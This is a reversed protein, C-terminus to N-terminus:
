FIAIAARLSKPDLSYCENEVHIHGQEPCQILSDCFESMQQFGSSSGKIYLNGSLVQFNLTYVKRRGLLLRRLKRWFCIKNKEQQVCEKELELDCEISATTLHCDNNKSFSFKGDDSRSFRLCVDKFFSLGQGNGYICAVDNEFRFELCQVDSFLPFVFKKKM